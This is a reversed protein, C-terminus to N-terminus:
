VVQENDQFTVTRQDSEVATLITIWGDERDITRADRLSLEIRDTSTYADGAELTGVSETGEWVLDEVDTTDRGAFVRVYVTVDTATENGDNHLTTTVDRCTTGCDEVDDITISFAVTDASGSGDTGDSSGDGDADEASADTGDSDEDTATPFTDITEGSDDGPAPGVGTYFAWGVGLGLLVVVVLGGLIYTRKM